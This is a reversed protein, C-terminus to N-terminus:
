FPADDRYAERQAREREDRRQKRAQRIARTQWPHEDRWEALVKARASWCPECQRLIRQGKRRTRVVGTGRCKCDPDPADPAASADTSAAALSAARAARFDRFETDNAPVAVTRSPDSM